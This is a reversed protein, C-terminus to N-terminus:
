AIKMYTLALFILREMDSGANVQSLHCIEKASGKFSIMCFRCISQEIRHINNYAQNWGTDLYDLHYAPIRMPSKSTKRVTHAVRQIGITHFTGFRGGLIQVMPALTSAHAGFSSFKVSNQFLFAGCPALGM